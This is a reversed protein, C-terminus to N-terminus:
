GSFRIAQSVEGFIAQTPGGILRVDPEDDAPFGSITVDGGILSLAETSAVRLRTDQVTIDGIPADLFGFADVPATSLIPAPAAAAELSATM